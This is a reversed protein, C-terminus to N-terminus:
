EGEEKVEELIEYVEISGDRLKFVPIYGREEIWTRVKLSAISLYSLADEVLEEVDEGSERLDELVERFEHTHKISMYVFKDQVEIKLYLPLTGHLIRLENKVPTEVTYGLTRLYETLASEISM